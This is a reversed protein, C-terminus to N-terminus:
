VIGDKKALVRSRPDSLVTNELAGAVRVRGRGTTGRATPLILIMYVCVAARRNALNLRRAGFVSSRIKADADRFRDEADLEPDEAFLVSSDNRSWSAM